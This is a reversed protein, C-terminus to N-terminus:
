IKDKIYFRRDYFPHFSTTLETITGDIHQVLRVKYYGVHAQLKRKRMFRSQDCVCAALITHVERPYFVGAKHYHGCIVIAPKEGGQFSEVLKQVAYSTAYCSGGGPHVLRMISKGHKATLEIDVEQYGLHVLDTRGRAQAELFLYRGFDIGERQFWWGEHDDATIYYTTIGDRQPYHDLCYLTQDAIGHVRIDYKNFSAEGEVMNGAHYVTKIGSKSFDDYAFNLVDLREYHSGLHTDSIVGFTLERGWARKPDIKIPKLDPIGQTMKAFSGRLSISYGADVLSSIVNEVTKEKVGLSNAIESVHKGNGRVLKIIEMRLLPSDVNLKKTKQRSEKACKASCYKLGEGEYYTSCEDCHRKYIKSM